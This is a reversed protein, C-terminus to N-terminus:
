ALFCYEYHVLREIILSGEILITNHSHILAPALVCDISPYSCKTVQSPPFLVSLTLTMLVLVACALARSALHGFHVFVFEISVIHM